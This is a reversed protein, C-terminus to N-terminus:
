LELQYYNDQNFENYGRPYFVDFPLQFYALKPFLYRMLHTQVKNNM